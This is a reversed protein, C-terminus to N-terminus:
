SLTSLLHEYAACFNASLDPNLEGAIPLQCSKQNLFIYPSDEDILDTLFQRERPIFEQYNPRHVKKFISSDGM